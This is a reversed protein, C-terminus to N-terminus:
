AWRAPGAQWHTERGDCHRSRDALMATARTALHAALDEPPYHAALGTYRSEIAEDVRHALACALVRHPHDITLQNLWEQDPLPEPRSCVHAMTLFEIWLILRPDQALHEGHRLERLLYPTGKDFSRLVSHPYEQVAVDRSVAEPNERDAG